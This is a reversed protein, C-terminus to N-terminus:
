PRSSTSCPPPGSSGACARCASAGPLCVRGLDNRLVDVIMTNEARDKESALLERALARDEERDRGRPRTGKIPDATM